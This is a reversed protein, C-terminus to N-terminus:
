PLLESAGKSSAKWAALAQKYPAFIKRLSREIDVEYITRIIHPHLEHRAENIVHGGLKKLLRHGDPTGGSAYIKAIEIGRSGWQAFTGAFHLLLISSLRTREEPPVDTRSMFDIIICELPNGPEFREISEEGFLWGRKGAIFQLIADHHLPVINISAALREHDYLHYTSEPSVKALRYTQERAEPTAAREGFNLRALEIESDMDAVEARRYEFGKGEAILLAAEILSAKRDIESKLYLGLKHGPLVIRKVRGAKVWSQFTNNNLGLVAAAQKATYYLDKIRSEHM